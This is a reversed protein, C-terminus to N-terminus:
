VLAPGVAHIHVLDARARRAYLVARFTSVIAELSQRKPSPLAVVKVGAVENHKLPLYPQRGIVTVALEPHRALVRPLLEECHTEVGGMVGPIGRLGTVVIHRTPRQGRKPM